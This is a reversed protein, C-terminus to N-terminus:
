VTKFSTLMGVLQKYEIFLIFLNSIYFSLTLKELLFNKFKYFLIIDSLTINCEDSAELNILVTSVCAALTPGKLMIDYTSNKYLIFNFYIQLGKPLDSTLFDLRSKLEKLNLGYHSLAMNINQNLVLDGAIIRLVVVKEVIRNSFLM